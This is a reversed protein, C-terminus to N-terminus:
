TPTRHGGSEAQLEPLIRIAAAPGGANETEQGPWNGRRLVRERGSRALSRQFPAYFLNTSANAVVGWLGTDLRRGIRQLIRWPTYARRMCDFLAMELEEAGAHLPRYVLHMGDM